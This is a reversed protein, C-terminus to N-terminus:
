PQEHGRLLRLVDAFENPVPASFRMTEGSTPHDFELSEAHLMHSRIRSIAEIVAPAMGERFRKLRVGYVSDGVIPHGIHAMHVRIQHTRGTALQVTLHSVGRFRERVSFHTRAERNRVGVVAMKKRDSPSRGIPADITGAPEAFGGYVLARYERKVSRASISKALTRHAAETKAVVLVGSTNKDLRYVIGPRNVGGATSLRNTHAMLANVLTGSRAGAAPHVVMGAPKDVVLLHEDGFVINLPIDEAECSPPERTGVSIRISEGMQVKHSPKVSRGNIQVCGSHILAQARSRSIDSLHAALFRDLRSGADDASVCLTRPRATMNRRMGSQPENLFMVPESM